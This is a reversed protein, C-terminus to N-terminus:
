CAPFNRIGSYHDYLFPISCVSGFKTENRTGGLEKQLLLLRFFPVTLKKNQEKVTGRFGQGACIFQQFAIKFYTNQVCLPAKCVKSIQIM